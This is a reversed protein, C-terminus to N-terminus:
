STTCRNQLSNMCQWKVDLLPMSLYFITHSTYQISITYLTYEVYICTTSTYLNQYTFDSRIPYSMKRRQSDNLKYMPVSIRVGDTYDHVNYIMTDPFMEIHRYDFKNSSFLHSGTKSTKNKYSCSYIHSKFGDNLSTKINM